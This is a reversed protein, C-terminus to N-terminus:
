LPSKSGSEVGFEIWQCSVDSMLLFEEEDSIGVCTQVGWEFSIGSTKFSDCDVFSGAANCGAPYVKGDGSKRVVSEDRPIGEM